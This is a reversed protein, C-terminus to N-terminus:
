KPRKMVQFWPYCVMGYVAGAVAWIVWHGGNTAINVIYIFVGFTVTAVVIKWIAPM